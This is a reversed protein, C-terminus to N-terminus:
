IKGEWTEFKIKISVAMPFEPKSKYMEDLYTYVIIIFLAYLIALVATMVFFQAGTSSDVSLFLTTTNDVKRWCVHEAFEFPYEIEYRKNFGKDNCDMNLTISFDRCAFFGWIAFIFQLIRM